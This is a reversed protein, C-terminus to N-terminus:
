ASSTRDNAVQQPTAPVDAETRRFPYWFQRWYGKPGPHGAIGDGTPWRGDAPFFYTGFLRDFVPFHVAFNVDIAEREVGHHWHHFRPTVVWHQLWGFPLKLNSHVFVSMLYVFLIYTYLPGEAFGLVYMPLTTFGRLVIIELLHMRSGAIWDMAQASHHVAHFKWLWPIRHFVRHVWYQVLDTLFMIELFQVIFPQSAILRRIGAAWGTNALVTMAPALSLFTLIQVFITSVLFYFLDERWEYRLIEQKRSPFLRELPIFILGLFIGNLIFFDLGLFYSSFEESQMQAQSGGLLSAALVTTVGAFGLLKKQRLVLSLLSFGFAAILVMQLAVRLWVLPYLSRLNDMVLYQPYRFCLVTALGVLALALGIFGSLWGSGWSREASDLEEALKNPM